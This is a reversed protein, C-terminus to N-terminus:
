VRLIDRWSSEVVPVVSFLLTLHSMGAIHVQLQQRSTISTEVHFWTYLESFWIRLNMSDSEQFSTGLVQLLRLTMDHWMDRGCKVEQVAKGCRGDRRQPGPGFDDKAEVSAGAALLVQVVELHGEVAAYVLPGNGRDPPSQQHHRRSAGLWMLQKPPNRLIEPRFFQSNPGGNRISVHIQLVVLWSMILRVMDWRSQSTASWGHWVNLDFWLNLLAGDLCSIM